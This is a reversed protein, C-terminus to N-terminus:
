GGKFSRFLRRMAGGEGRDDAPTTSQHAEPGVVMVEAEEITGPPPAYPTEPRDLAQRPPTVASSSGGIPERV